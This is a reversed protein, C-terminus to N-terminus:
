CSFFAGLSMVLVLPLRADTDIRIEPVQEQELASHWHMAPLLNSLM